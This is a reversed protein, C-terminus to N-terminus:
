RDLHKSHLLMDMGTAARSILLPVTNHLLAMPTRRPHHPTLIRLLLAMLTKRLHHLTLIRLLLAMPTRRLVMGQIHTQEVPLNDRDRMHIKHLMLLQIINQGVM